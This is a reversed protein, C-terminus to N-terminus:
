RDVTVGKMDSDAVDTSERTPETYRFDITVDCILVNYHYRVPRSMLTEDWAIEAYENGFAVEVQAM